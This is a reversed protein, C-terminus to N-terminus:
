EPPSRTEHLFCVPASRCQACRPLDTRLEARRGGRRQGRKGRTCNIQDEGGGINEDPEERVRRGNAAVSRILAISPSFYSDLQQVKQKFHVGGTAKLMPMRRIFAAAGRRLALTLVNPTLRRTVEVLEESTGRWTSVLDYEGSKGSHWTPREPARAAAPCILGGRCSDLPPPRTAM